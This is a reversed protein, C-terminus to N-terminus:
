LTQREIVCIPLDGPFRGGGMDLCIDEYRMANLACRGLINFRRDAAIYCYLSSKSEANIQFELSRTHCFATALM